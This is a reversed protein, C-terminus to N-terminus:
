MLEYVDVIGNDLRGGHKSRNARAKADGDGASTCWPPVTPNSAFKEQVLSRPRPHFGNYSHPRPPTGFRSGSRSAGGDYQNGAEHEHGIMRLRNLEPLVVSGLDPRDKKRLEACKLSIKAFARAEQVPWDTVTPDLLDEFVGKEIAKEVNHALGMPPRATIIQLLMIGLSYMDSKVGLMGTQQYEPDIYCFTGAASTMHYQTVSNAVSPPVLRALGVDGIKSVYNRDLLINGPKLDRHVMPEPKAQHLFLLATAIEAAIRFRATWPITPSNGRRFLRDDLSGNDMFEYVLCGYEPCAGLLLVMNPHRISSLIEVEQQFQKRGQAADPRLVKIAVPTHDLFAKYVPGYGGEGIKNEPSFNNTASEIEEISYKRYCTDTQALVDLAKRREEAERSAKMEADIRKQAELKAIRQAAEAAELAARCKAKEMKAMALAAEEANRLEEFKQAEVMKWQQLEMAKQKATIAEKCANSYMEMTQKLELRLRRMEDELERHACSFSSPSSRPSEPSSSSLELSDGFDMSQFSLGGQLDSDESFSSSFDASRQPRNSSELNAIFMNNPASQAASLPGDRSPQKLYGPLRDMSRRQLREHLPTQPASSRWGVRARVLDEQDSLLPPTGSVSLQQPPIAIAPALNKVSRIITPKGKSIAYVMCFEPAYKTLCTPVDPNKLKKMISRNSAGIVINQISNAYLYDAIAKAIDAGELVVEELQVGKRACFGRYPIFLQNLEAEAQEGTIEQGAETQSSKSRVHLLCVVPSSVLHDVAWRVAQQSNKDRDIAVATMGSGAPPRRGVDDM